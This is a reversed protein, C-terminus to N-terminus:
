FNSFIDNLPPPLNLLKSEIKSKLSAFESDSPNGQSLFKKFLNQVKKLLQQVETDEHPPRGKMPPPPGWNGP